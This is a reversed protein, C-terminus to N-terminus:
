DPAGFFFRVTGRYEGDAVNQQSQPGLQGAINFKTGMPAIGHLISFGAEPFSAWANASLHQSQRIAQTAATTPSHPKPDGPFTPRLVQVFLSPDGDLAVLIPGATTQLQMWRVGAYYGKFEPYVWQNYGTQTDNLSNEWVNLMGGELRNKWVRFPGHGLWKMGKM